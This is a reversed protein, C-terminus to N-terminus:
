SFDEGATYVGVGEMLGFAEEAGGTVDLFASGQCDERGGEDIGSGPHILDNELFELAGAIHLDVEVPGEDVSADEGTDIHFAGAGALFFEEVVRVFVGAHDDEAAGEGAHGGHFGHFEDEPFEFLVGAIDFEQERHRDWALEDGLVCDGGLGHRVGSARSKAL